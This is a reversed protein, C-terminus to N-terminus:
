THHAHLGLGSAPCVVGDLSPALSLANIAAPPPGPGCNSAELSRESAGGCIDDGTGACGGVDNATTESVMTALRATIRVATM